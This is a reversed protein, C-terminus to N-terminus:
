RCRSTANVSEPASAPSRPRARRGGAAASCALRDIEVQREDRERHEDDAADVLRQPATTPASATLASSENRARPRSRASSKPQCARGERRCAADDDIPASIASTRIRRGLPMVPPRSNASGPASRRRRARVGDHDARRRRRRRCSRCGRRPAGRAPRRRTRARRAALLVRARQVLVAQADGAAAVERRLDVPASRDPPAAPARGRSGRRCPCRGRAARRAGRPGAEGARRHHRHLVPEAGLLDDARVAVPRQEGRDREHAARPVGVRM